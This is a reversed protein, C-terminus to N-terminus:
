VTSQIDCTINDILINICPSHGAESHEIIARCVASAYTNKALQNLSGSVNRPRQIPNQEPQALCRYAEM